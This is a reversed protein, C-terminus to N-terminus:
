KFVVEVELDPYSMTMFNALQKATKEDAEKLRGDKKVKDEM